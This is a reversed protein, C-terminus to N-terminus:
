TRTYAADRSRERAKRYAWQRSRSARLVIAANATGRPAWRTMSTSGCFVTHVFASHLIYFASNSVVLSRPNAGTGTEKRGENKMRCEANKM